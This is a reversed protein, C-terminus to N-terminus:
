VPSLRERAGQLTVVLVAPTELLFLRALRGADRVCSQACRELMVGVYDGKSVGQQHLVHAIADVRAMLQEYTTDEGQCSIAVAKPTRAAHDAVHDVVRKM